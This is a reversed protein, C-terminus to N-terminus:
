CIISNILSSFHLNNEITCVANIVNDTIILFQNDSIIKIEDNQNKKFSYGKFSVDEAYNPDDNITYVISYLFNLCDDNTINEILNDNYYLNMGWLSHSLFQRGFFTSCVPLASGVYVYYEENFNFGNYYSTLTHHQGNKLHITLAESSGGAWYPDEAQKVKLNSINSLIKQIEIQETAINFTNYTQYLDPSVSGIDIKSTIYDIDNVEIDNIWSHLTSLKIEESVVISSINNTPFFTSTSGCSVLTCFLMPIILFIKKM